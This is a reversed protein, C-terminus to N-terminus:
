DLQINSYTNMQDLTEQIQKIDAKTISGDKANIKLHISNFKENILRMIGWFDNMKGEPVEFGFDLSHFCEVTPTSNTRSRIKSELNPDLIPESPESKIQEKCISDHIIIENEAFAILPQTKFYKCSPNGDILEGLGFTGNLIGQNLSTVVVTDNIPRRNGKMSLMSEYMLSTKAFKQDKLYENKLILPGIKEHIQQESILREFVQDSIGKSEGTTPIGMDHKDFGDKNPVYLIRYYKKIQHELAIKEKKLEDEIDKKQRPNLNQYDGSIKELAIKSKLIGVFQIRETDSPCLFFISNRYIRPSEGKNELIKNCFKIDDESLIVLKLTPSDDIDKPNNPWIKVRIQQKGINTELLTRENEQVEKESVNEMKDMKLRNLNPESSFLYRDDENKIYSLKSKFNGVIDGVISPLVDPNSAARKIQNITAGNTGTSSFSCMFIATAARTGLHLGAYSTGISQDARKAGSDSDTIDKTIVSDLTNGTHELLERRIESNELDFDSLTIYSKESNKLSYVLLSLLRLVGRTRQFSVFSGWNQYLVDIVQPLFPYTQEFEERYQKATKNPPLISERECYDVFNSIIEEANKQIENEPTSFLRSRIINPIDNPDVPTIKREKRGSIKRINRLLTESNQKDAMEIVSAPFSAIVCVRNLTSTVESLQQIFAITQIALTTDNLKVGAAVSVYPLLEDILILVSEHKRLVNKLKERGPALNGSLKDIKGDLQKEIMGWVTDESSMATGVIVVPKAGWQKSYHYMAILAHTKGGGFPTEIHQFGDGGKGKLRDQVDNLISQLNATMHTKKFFTKSDTYEETGTNQFTDWLDAAFINLTLKKTMIDKHPVAITHFSKM